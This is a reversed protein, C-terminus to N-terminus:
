QEETTMHSTGISKETALLRRRHVTCKLLVQGPGISYIAFSCDTEGSECVLAEQVAVTEGPQLKVAQQLIEIM